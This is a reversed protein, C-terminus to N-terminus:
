FKLFTQNKDLKSKKAPQSSGTSSKKAAPPPRAKPKTKTLKLPISPATTSSAAHKPTAKYKATSKFFSSLSTNGMKQAHAIDRALHWDKHEGIDTLRLARKCRPCQVTSLVTSTGDTHRTVFMDELKDWDVGNEDGDNYPPEDDDDDSGIGNIDVPKSEASPSEKPVEKSSALCASGPTQVEDEADEEEVDVFPGDNVPSARKELVIPKETEKKSVGPYQPTQQTQPKFFSSLSKTQPGGSNNIFGHIELSLMECPYTAKKKDMEGELLKLLSCSADFLEKRLTAETVGVPFPAQKGHGTAKGKSKFVVSISRPYLLLRQDASAAGGDRERRDQSLEIVRGALDASFVQLWQVADSTAKLTYKSFNKVSSMSKIDTRISIASSETGTALRKLRKTLQPSIRKQMDERSLSNVFAISGKIPINLVSRIHKGLKGGLGGMDSIEFRELFVPIVSSRIVNQTAPKLMGSGLKALSKNRAIGASCTYGLEKLIEQRLEKVIESAIMLVVDDWGGIELPYNALEDPKVTSDEAIPSDPSDEQDLEDEIADQNLQEKAPEPTKGAPKQEIEDFNYLDSGVTEGQYANGESGIIRGQWKVGMLELMEKRPPEPLASEMDVGQMEPFLSVIKDHVLPGLDMYTEDISAKELAKVRRTLVEFIRRSERRYPDLSVKHHPVVPNDHYAWTTEGKRFTAVHALVVGPCKEKASTITEHRSIGYRRAAYSVAILGSWQQCVVPDTKKM